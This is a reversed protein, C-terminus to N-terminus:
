DHFSTDGCSCHPRGNKCRTEIVSMVSQFLQDRRCLTMRPLGGCAELTAHTLSRTFFFSTMHDPNLRDMEGDIARAEEM